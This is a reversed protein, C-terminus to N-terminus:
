PKVLVISDLEGLNHIHIYQICYICEFLFYVFVYQVLINCSEVLQYGSDTSETKQPM